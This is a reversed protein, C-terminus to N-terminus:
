VGSRSAARCRRARFGAMGVEGDLPAGGFVALLGFVFLYLLVRPQGGVGFGDVDALVPDLVVLEVPANAVVVALVQTVEVVGDGGRVAALEVELREVALPIREFGGRAVVGGTLKGIRVGRGVRDALLEAEAEDRPKPLAAETGAFRGCWCRDGWREAAFFLDPRFQRLQKHVVLRLVTASCGKGRFLV